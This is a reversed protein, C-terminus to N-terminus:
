LWSELSLFRTESDLGIVVVCYKQSWQISKDTVADRREGGGARKKRERENQYYFRFKAKGRVIHSLNPWDSNREGSNSYHSYNSSFYRWPPPQNFPRNM